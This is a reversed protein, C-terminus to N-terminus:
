IPDPTGIKILCSFTENLIAFLVFALVISSASFNSVPLTSVQEYLRTETMVTPM